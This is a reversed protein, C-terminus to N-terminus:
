LKLLDEKGWNGGVKNEISGSTFKLTYKNNEQLGYITAYTNNKTNLVKDGICFGESSCGTTRAQNSWSWKSSLQGAFQGDQFEIVLQDDFTIAIVKVLANGNKINILIDNVCIKESNCGEIVSLDERPINAFVHSSKTFSLAYNGDDQVGIIKAEWDKGKTDRFYVTTDKKLARAQRQQKLIEERKLQEYKEKEEATRAIKDEKEAKIRQIAGQIDLQQALQKMQAIYSISQKDSLKTTPFIKLNNNIKVIQSAVSANNLDRYLDWQLWELATRQISYQASAAFISKNLDNLFNFYDMGFLIFPAATGKSLTEMDTDYYKLAMVITNRLVRLKVDQTGVADADMKQNLINHVVLGRNLIYRMLLESKKTSSETVTSTIGDVLRDIKDAMNLNQVSEQLDTLFVRSNKAWPLLEAIQAASLTTQTGEKLVSPATIVPMMVEDAKIMTSFGLSSLILLTTITHALKM